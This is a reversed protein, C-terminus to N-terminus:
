KKEVLFNGTMERTIKVPKGSPLERVEGYDKDLDCVAWKRLVTGNSIKRKSYGQRYIDSLEASTLFYVGRKSLMGLLRDLENLRDSVVREPFASYNVRHPQIM